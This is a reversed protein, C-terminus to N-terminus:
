NHNINVEAAFKSTKRVGMIESLVRGSDKFSSKQDFDSAVLYRKTNAIGNLM